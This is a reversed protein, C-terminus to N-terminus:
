ARSVQLIRLGDTVTDAKSNGNHKETIWTAGYDDSIQIGAIYTYSTPYGPITHAKREVDRVIAVTNGTGNCSIQIKPSQCYIERLSSSAISDSFGSYLFSLGFSELKCQRSFTAGKDLSCYVSASVYPLTRESSSPSETTGTVVYVVKGSGNTCIGLPYENEEKPTWSLKHFTEAYDETRYLSMSYVAKGSVKGLPNEFSLLYGIKGTKSFGADLIYSDFSGSDEQVIHDVLNDVVYSGNSERYLYINKAADMTATGSSCSGILVNTFIKGDDSSRFVYDPCVTQSGSSFTLPPLAFDQSFSINQDSDFTVTSGTISMRKSNYINYSRLAQLQTEGDDKWSQTTPLMAIVRNGRYVYRLGSAFYYNSQIEQVTETGTYRTRKLGILYGSQSGETGVGITPVIVDIKGEGPIIVPNGPQIKGDVDYNTDNNFSGSGVYKLERRVFPTYGTSVSGERVYVHASGTIWTGTEEYATGLFCNGYVVANGDGPGGGEESQQCFLKRRSISM